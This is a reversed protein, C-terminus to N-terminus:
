WKKPDTIMIGQTPDGEHTHRGGYLRAKETSGYTSITLAKDIDWVFAFTNEDNGYLIVTEPSFDTFTEGGKLLIEFSCESSEACLQKTRSLTKVPENQTGSNSDSGSNSVYVAKCSPAASQNRVVDKSRMCCPNAAFIALILLRHIRITGQGQGLNVLHGRM